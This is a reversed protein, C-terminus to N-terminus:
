LRGEEELKIAQELKQFVEESSDRNEECFQDFESWNADLFQKILDLM